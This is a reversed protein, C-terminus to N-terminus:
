KTKILAAPQGDEGGGEQRGHGYGLTHVRYTCTVAFAVERLARQGACTLLINSLPLSVASPRALNM